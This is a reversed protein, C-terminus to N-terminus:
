DTPPFAPLASKVPISREPLRRYVRIGQAGIWALMRYNNERLGESIIDMLPEDMFTERIAGDVQGYGEDAPMDWHNDDRGVFSTRGDPDKRPTVDMMLPGIKFRLDGHPGSVRYLTGKVPKPHPPSPYPVLYALALTCSRDIERVLSAYVEVEDKKNLAAFLDKLTLTSM